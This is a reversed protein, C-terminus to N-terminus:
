LQKVDICKCYVSFPMIIINVDLYKLNIFDQTLLTEFGKISSLGKSDSLSFGVYIPSRNFKFILLRIPLYGLTNIDAQNQSKTVQDWWLKILPKKSTFIELLDFKKYFKCEVVFPFVISKGKHLRPAIDGPEEWGGSMPTRWFTKSPVNFWKDFLGSVLREFEFGKERGGAKRM